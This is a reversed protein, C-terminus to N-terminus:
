AKSSLWPNWHRWPLSKTTPADYNTSLLSPQWLPSSPTLSDPHLLSYKNQSIDLVNIKWKPLNDLSELGCDQLNLIAVNKFKQLEKKIDDTFKGINIGSIDLTATDSEYEKLRTQIEKLASM